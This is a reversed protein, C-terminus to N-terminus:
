QKNQLNKVENEVEILFKEDISNSTIKHAIDDGFKSKFKKLTEEDKFIELVIKQIRDMKNLSNNNNNDIIINNNNNITNNNIENKKNTNENTIIENNKNKNNNNNDNLKNETNSKSYDLNIKSDNSNSILSNNQNLNTNRSNNKNIYIPPIDLFDNPNLKGYDYNLKLENLNPINIREYNNNNITKRIDNLNKIYKESNNNDEKHNFIINKIENEYKNILYDKEKNKEDLYIISNILNNLCDEFLKFKQNIKNRSFMFSEYSTINIIENKLILISNGIKKLDELASPNYQKNNNYNM